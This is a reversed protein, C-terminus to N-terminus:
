WKYKVGGRWAIGYYTATFGDLGSQLLEVDNVISWNDNLNVQSNIRTSMMGINAANFDSLNGISIGLRLKENNIFNLYGLFTLISEFQPEMNFFSTFRFNVGVAIGAIRYNLAAMPLISHGHAEYEPLGNYLYQLSFGLPYSFPFVSGNLLLSIDTVGASGGLSFGGRVAWINNLEVKGLASLNSFLNFAQNREARVYGEVEKGTIEVSFANQLSFIFILASLLFCKKM